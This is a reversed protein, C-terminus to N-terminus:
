QSRRAGPSSDSYTPETIIDVIYELEPFQFRVTIGGALMKDWVFGAFESQLESERKQFISEYPDM